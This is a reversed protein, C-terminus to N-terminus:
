QVTRHKKYHAATGERRFIDVATVAFSTYDHPLTVTTGEVWACVIHAPNDTDVDGTKTAYVVYRVAGDVARWSLIDAKSDHSVQLDSVADLVPIAEVRCMPPVLAPESYYQERLLRALSPYDQLHGWRFFAQGQAGYRRTAKIQEEIDALSWKGEKPDLRYAGLGAVMNGEGGIREVWDILYPTFGDGKYYMMPAVFDINGEYIWNVADQAVGGVCTWSTFPQSDVPAYRGLPATSLMIYEDVKKVEDCVARVIESINEMRWEELTEGEGAYKRYTKDDPFTEYKDPYRIYDLHIGDVDYNYAIEQAISVIYQATEPVGPNLYWESGQKICLEPRRSPLSKNGQLGVHKTSGAPVTILWAHCELGRRHCEDIVFALVDYGPSRGSAGSVMRSWPEIESPYLVEGYIRTQFFVTNLGLAKVEDLLNCLEQQQQKVSTPDTAVQSPWDLRWNTTLWVARMEYKPSIAWLSVTVGLFFCLLLFKRMM